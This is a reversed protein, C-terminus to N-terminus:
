DHEESATSSPMHWRLALVDDQLALSVAHYDFDWVALMTSPVDLHCRWSEVCPHDPDGWRRALILLLRIFRDEPVEAGLVEVPLLSEQALRLCDDLDDESGAKTQSGSPRLGQGMRMPSAPPRIRLRRAELDVELWGHEERSPLLSAWPVLTRGEYRRRLQLVFPWQKQGKQGAAIWARGSIRPPNEGMNYTEPVFGDCWLGLARAAEVRALEGCTLLELQSWFESETM